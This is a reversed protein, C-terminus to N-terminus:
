FIIKIVKVIQKYLKQIVTKNIVNRILKAFQIQKFQNLKKLGAKIIKVQILM